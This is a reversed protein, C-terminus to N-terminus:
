TFNLQTRRVVIPWWGDLAAASGGDWSEDQTCKVVMKWGVGCWIM